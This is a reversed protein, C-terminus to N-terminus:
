SEQQLFGNLVTFVIEASTDWSYKDLCTVDRREAALSNLDYDYCDPSVYVADEGFVEHMVESDSVIICPAGAALAELPPLGFGEYFTVFLFAKCDVMLSKAEEDSVYGLLKVNEPIQEKVESFVKSNMGGAVAFTEQPNRKATEVIWKLNKNPELSSMAFYYNRRELDYKRLTEDSSIGKGFHQWANQAVVVKGKAKPYYKEIEKKSFESVTIIAKAKKAINKMLFRYWLRFKFSFFEPYVCVKVDHICVIKPAFLPASNCLNLSIAKQKKVYRSFATQEWLTGTKKGRVVVNIHQFAPVAAVADAPVLLELEGDQCIADLRSVIEGAYRQVGTKKQGYFKGNIAIKM